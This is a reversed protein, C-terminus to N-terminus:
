DYDNTYKKNKALLIHSTYNILKRKLTKIIIKFNKNNINIKIRVILECCM